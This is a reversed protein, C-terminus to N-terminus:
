PGSVPRPASAGSAATVAPAASTVVPVAPAATSGSAPAAPTVGPAPAVGKEPTATAAATEGTVALKQKKGKTGRAVRTAKSKVVAEAKSAATKKVAKAPAFGLQLLQAGDAGFRAEAIGRVGQRLTRVSTELEREAQVSARWAQNASKTSEAAAVFIQFQTVLDDRTFKGTKMQFIDTPQYLALLGSVLGQYVAQLDVKTGHNSGNATATILTAAATSTALPPQALAPPSAVPTAVPATVPAPVAINSPNM